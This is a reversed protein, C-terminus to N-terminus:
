NFGTSLMNQYIPKNLLELITIDKKFEIVFVKASHGPAQGPTSHM